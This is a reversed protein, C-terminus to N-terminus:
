AESGVEIAAKELQALLQRAEPQHRDLALVERLLRVAGAQDRGERALAQALLLRPWVSHPWAASAEELLARAATFEQRALHLRARVVAVVPRLETAAALRMLEAEAAEGRGSALCVEALGLWGPLFDAREAVAQRWSREAEALRRQRLYLQALQHRTKYGYVGLDVCSLAAGPRRSLLDRWCSEAADLEGAEQLLQAEWYLLDGDDAHQARGQRCMTLAEAKQGLRYLGFTLLGYLRPRLSYSAPVRELSQRLFAVAEASRGLDLYLTGLNFLTLPDDPREAQDLLLLRRNRELKHRRLRPDQYGSHYFVIDTPRSVGGLRLVAPLIQEHVRYEFRLRPDNRFLKAQDVVTITGSVSDPLSHQRMLYAALEQDLGTFLTKMKRRNDEDLTDDADLWLIWDGRAHRISENRAAAFSDCWPFDYVAAGFRRAIVKTADTSGTDVVIMEGVLDAVSALCRPLNSEENKVIMCLSVRPRAPAATARIAEDFWAEAPLEHPAAQHLLRRQQRLREQEETRGLQGLTQHLLRAAARDRPNAALALRLHHVAEAPRQADALAAGLAAQTAPLDPRALTAEYRHVLEGTLRALLGHLRWRLLIHKARAEAASDGAHQWAARDWEIAFVTRGPPYPPANLSPLDLQETADLVALTQRAQAVADAGRGARALSEARYLGALLHGPDTKLLQQLQEAAVVYEGRAAYLLALAQRLPADGAEGACATTLDALLTADAATDAAIAQEVRALLQERYNWAARHSARESLESLDRDLLTLLEEWFPPTGSVTPAAPDHWCTPVHLNEIGLQRLRPAAEATCVVRECRALLRRRHHWQTPGNDPLIAIRPLPSSWLGIPVAAPGLVVLAAQPRADDSLRSQITEWSDTPGALTASDAEGFSLLLAEAPPPALTKTNATPGWLFCPLM